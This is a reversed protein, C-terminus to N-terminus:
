VNPTNKSKAKFAMLLNAFVLIFIGALAISLPPSGKFYEIVLGVLIGGNVLIARM